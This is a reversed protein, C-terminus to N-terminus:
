GAVRHLGCRYRLVSQIVSGQPGLQQCRQVCSSAAVGEEAINRWHTSGTAAVHSGCTKPLRPGATCTHATRVM